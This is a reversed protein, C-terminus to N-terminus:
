EKLARQAEPLIKEAWQRYMKGSPHLGDDAILSRDDAAKKSIGTIDVFAIGLATVEEHCGANFADIQRSIKGRDSSAAFPTVGYDPISVVIVRSPKEGALTVARKCQARFQTRFEVIDRGRFQNNVGILVTVLRYPAKPAAADMGASLEDTTWGTTAIIQPDAVDAGKERVMRALQVPWRDAADVSEGITYSDGLALFGNKANEAPPRPSARQCGLLSALVITSLFLRM